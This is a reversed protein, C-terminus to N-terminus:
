QFTDTRSPCDPVVVEASDHLLTVASHHPVLIDPSTFTWDSSDPIAVVTNRVGAGIASGPVVGM